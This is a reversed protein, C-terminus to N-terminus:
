TPLRFSPQRTAAALPLLSALLSPTFNQSHRKTALVTAAQKMRYLLLPAPSCVMM